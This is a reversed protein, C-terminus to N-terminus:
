VGAGIDSRNFRYFRVDTSAPVSLGLVVYEVSHIIFYILLNSGALLRM